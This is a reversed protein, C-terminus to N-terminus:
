KGYNFYKVKMNNLLDEKKQIDKKLCDIALITEEKLKNRAAAEADARTNYIDQSSRYCYSSTPSAYNSVPSMTINTSYTAATSFIQTSQLASYDYMLRFAKYKVTRLESSPVLDTYPDFYQTGDFNQKLEGMIRYIKISGASTIHYGFKEVM